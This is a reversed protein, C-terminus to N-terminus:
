EGGTERATYLLSVVRRDPETLTFSSIDGPEVWRIEEHDLCAVAGSLRITRFAMLEFDAEGTKFPFACILDGVSIEIALEERIERKLAEVPSEGSEVKGGPFEWLGGFRDGSKRRAILVRGNEEIVAAAVRTPDGM